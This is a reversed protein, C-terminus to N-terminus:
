QAAETFDPRLSANGQRRGPPAWDGSGSGEAFQLARKGGVHPAAPLPAYGLTTMDEIRELQLMLHRHTTYFKGDETFLQDSIMM